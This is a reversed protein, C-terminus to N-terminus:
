KRTKGRAATLGYSLANQPLLLKKHAALKPNLRQRVSRDIVHIPGKMAHKKVARIIKKGISGSTPKGSMQSAVM